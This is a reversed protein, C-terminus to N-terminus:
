EVPTVDVSHQKFSTGRSNIKSIKGKYSLLVKAGKAVGAMADDLEKCGYIGATGEFNHIVVPGGKGNKRPFTETGKFVATLGEPPLNNVGMAKPQEQEPQGEQVPAQETTM